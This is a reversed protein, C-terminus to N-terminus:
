ATRRAPQHWRLLTAGWSYGVGFGVLMVRDGDKIAGAAADECLAIPITSSVTNGCHALCISFKDSPLKLHKRLHELMYGNAQHFVFRDIASVPQDARQLLHAVAQPVAQLTFQFIEPGNMSLVNLTPLNGSPDTAPASGPVCPQRLGGTPVILNAAGSGDTGYVFPGIYDQDAAVAAVLTAAAADGFLTRTSRDQPHIFKSYTEATLLLVKGAQGSEILGKALGLGYVFGSCGLNFDLAGCTTPLKLRHQLLCATTPLFYDPSQTCFLLFDIEEPRCAGSRFLKTAAEFALDSSCQQASALHRQRIGTKEEIKPGTWNGLEAALRDNDLVEQPLYYEIGSIFAKLSM